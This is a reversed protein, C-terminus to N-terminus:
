KSFFIFLQFLEIQLFLIFDHFIFKFHFCNLFTLTFDKREDIIQKKLIM